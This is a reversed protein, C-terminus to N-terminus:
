RQLRRSRSGRQACRRLEGQEAGLHGSPAPTHSALLAAPALMPALLCAIRRMITSAAAIVLTSVRILPESSM